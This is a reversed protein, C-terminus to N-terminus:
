SRIFFYVVPSTFLLSDVMDLVGGMGPLRNSDKVFADRKLLSEALDGIQALIGIVIGMWIADIAGLHFSKIGMGKAMVALFFSLGVACLLGGIAGEITKRPSLQPALAHRGCLRGVLYGGIDTGKTVAVLYFLWWRGDEVMFDRAFPHLVALMFSLPIAIYCVGFLEVAVHILATNFDRFHVVFFSVFGLVMTLLALRSWEPYALSTYFALVEAVAVGVMLWTAPELGKAKVLQAYEWVGVGALGAVTLVLVGNVWPMRSFFILIGVVAIAIVSYLLRHYFEGTKKRM